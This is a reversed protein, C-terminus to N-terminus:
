FDGDSADFAREAARRLRQLSARVDHRTRALAQAIQRERQGRLLRDLVECEASALGSRFEEIGLAEAPDEYELPALGDDLVNGQGEEGHLSSGALDSGHRTWSRRRLDDKFANRICQRVYGHWGETVEFAEPHRQLIRLTADGVLDDATAPCATLRNATVQATQLLDAARVESEASTAGAAVFAAALSTLLKTAISAM